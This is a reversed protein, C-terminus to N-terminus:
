GGRWLKKGLIKVHVMDASSIVEEPYKPNDSRVFLGGDFRKAIRKIRLDDGYAIAYVENDIIDQQGIDILVSDGIELSPTMSEDQMECVRLNSRSTVKKSKIWDERFALPPLEQEGEQPGTGGIPLRISVRPVIVFVGSPLDSPIDWTEITNLKPQEALDLSGLPIRLKQELTRATKEGFSCTGLMLQSLYSRSMEHKDAFRADEMGSATVLRRLNARRINKTDTKM